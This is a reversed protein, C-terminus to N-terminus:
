GEDWKIEADDTVMLGWDRVEWGRLSREERLMWLIAKEQNKEAESWGKEVQRKFTPVGM